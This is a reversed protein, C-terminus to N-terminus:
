IIGGAGLLEKYIKININPCTKNSNFEYHGYIDLEYSRSLGYLLKPLSEFLQKSTFKYNGILCVGIAKNHGKCHAGQRPLNRGREVIGDNTAIYIKGQKRYGNTIVYHYGIGNWGRAKHWKDIEEADGWESASCHIIVERVMM